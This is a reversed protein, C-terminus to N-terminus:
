LEKEKGLNVNENENVDNKVNSNQLNEVISGNNQKQQDKEVIQANIQESSMNLIQQVRM